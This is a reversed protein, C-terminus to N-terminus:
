PPILFHLVLFTTSLPIVRSVLKLLIFLLMNYLVLMNTREVERLKVPDMKAKMEAIDKESPQMWRFLLWSAFGTGAVFLTSYGWRKYKLWRADPLKNDRPAKFSPREETKM